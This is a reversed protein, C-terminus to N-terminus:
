ADLLGEEPFDLRLADVCPAAASPDQAELPHWSHGHGAEPGMHEIRTGPAVIMGKDKADNFWHADCYRCGKGSEDAIHLVADVTM